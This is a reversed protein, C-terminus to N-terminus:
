ELLFRSEIRWASNAAAVDPRAYGQAIAPAGPPVGSAEPRPM